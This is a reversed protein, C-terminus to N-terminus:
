SNHIREKVVKQLDTYDAFVEQLWLSVFDTHSVDAWLYETHEPSLIIKDSAPSCLFIIMTIAQGDDRTFHRIALPREINIILNTEEKAERQLGVFPDEGPDLRGGPIDWQGPKHVDNPRRKILLIKGDNVIFAKVAVRFDIKM